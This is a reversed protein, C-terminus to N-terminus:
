AEKFHAARMSGMALPREAQQPWLCYSLASPVPVTGTGLALNATSLSPSSQPSGTEAAGTARIWQEAGDWLEVGISELGSPEM